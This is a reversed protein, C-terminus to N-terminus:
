KLHAKYTRTDRADVRYNHYLYVGEAIGLKGFKAVARSFHFDVFRGNIEIGGEPFKGARLWTAKSFLMMIGGVTQASSIPKITNKVSLEKALERHKKIDFETFMGKVLQYDLGLRNTMCGILSFPGPNNAIWEVQKIFEEHFPPVTDIDRLCIWDNEPLGEILSNVAKGFNKDARAPTIHHVNPSMNM